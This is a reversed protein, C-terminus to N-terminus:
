EKVEGFVEILMKMSDIKLFIELFEMKVNLCVFVDESCSVKVMEKFNWM